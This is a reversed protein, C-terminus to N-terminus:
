GPNGANGPTVMAQRAYLPWHGFRLLRARRWRWGGRLIRHSGIPRGIAVDAFGDGNFDGSVAQGLFAWATPAQSCLWWLGVALSMGLRFVIVDAKVEIKM